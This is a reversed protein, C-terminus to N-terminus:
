SACSASSAYPAAPEPARASAKLATGGGESGGCFLSDSIWTLDFLLTITSGSDLWFFFGLVYGEQGFSASLLEVGFILICLISLINFLIDTRRPTFALRFDDGFLAYFTLVTTLVCFRWSDCLAKSKTRIWLLAGARSCRTRPSKPLADGKKGRRGRVSPQNSGEHPSV